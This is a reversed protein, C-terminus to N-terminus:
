KLSSNTRSLIRHWRPKQIKRNRDIRSTHWRLKSRKQHTMYEMIVTKSDNLLLGNANLFDKVKIIIEELREQNKNRSNSTTIYQSDDAYTPMTGCMSCPGGFLVTTDQHGDEGCYQENIVSPLENVFLLYLLPGIVSGQPVGCFTTKPTSNQSGIVVYSSRGELYSEIWQLTTNDLGYYQLKQLLTSHQVTDFAASLDLSIAASIQNEDAGIALLDMLHLLASTTSTRSRYAHHSPHLQGSTELYNLLHIQVHRETLKCILPIQAVPRFSKPSSKDSDSSKLLPLIRSTKWKMPVIGTGLSLNILHAIVPALIPGVLKITSGDIEDHGFAHSNKLSNLMKLVELTTVSNLHFKPEGM